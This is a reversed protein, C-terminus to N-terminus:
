LRNAGMALAHERCLFVNNPTPHASILSQSNLCASIIEPNKCGEVQCALLELWEGSFGAKEMSKIGLALAHKKGPGHSSRKFFRANGAFFVPRPRTCPCDQNNPKCGYGSNPFFRHSTITHGCICIQKSRPYQELHELYGFAAEDDVAFFAQASEAPNSDPSMTM